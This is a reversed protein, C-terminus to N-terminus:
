LEGAATNLIAVTYATPQINFQHTLDWDFLAFCGDNGIVFVAEGWRWLPACVLALV